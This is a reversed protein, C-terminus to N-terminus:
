NFFLQIQLLKYILEQLVKIMKYNGTFQLLCPIRMRKNDAKNEAKGTVEVYCNNQPDSRLFYFMKKVYKGSKMNALHGIINNGNDVIAVTSKDFEKQPEMCIKFVKGIVPEQNNPYMHCEM